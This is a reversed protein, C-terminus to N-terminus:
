LSIQWPKNAIGSKIDDLLPVLIAIVFRQALICVQIWTASAEENTSTVNQRAGLSFEPHSGKGTHLGAVMCLNMAIAGLTTSPDTTFRITPLPWACMLLLAHIAELGVVPTSLLIWIDNNIIEILTNLLRSDRSYRRCTVFIIVCFLTACAEYCEDPDRKRM